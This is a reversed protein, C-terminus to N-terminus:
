IEEELDGWYLADRERAEQRSREAELAIQDALKCAEALSILRGGLPGRVQAEPPHIMPSFCYSQSVGSWAAVVSDDWLPHGIEGLSYRVDASTTGQGLISMLRVYDLPSRARVHYAVREERVTPLPPASPMVDWTTVSASPWASM